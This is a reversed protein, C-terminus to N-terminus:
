FDAAPAVNVDSEHNLVDSENYKLVQTHSLALQRDPLRAPPSFGTRQCAETSTSNKFYQNM